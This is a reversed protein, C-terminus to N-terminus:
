RWSKITRYTPLPRLDQPRIRAVAIFQGEDDVPLVPEVVLVLSEEDAASATVMRSFTRNTPGAFSPSSVSAREGFYGAPKKKSSQDMSCLARVNAQEFGTKNNQVLRVGERRVFRLFPTVWRDDAIGTCPGAATHAM